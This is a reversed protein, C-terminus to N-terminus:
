LQTYKIWPFHVTCACFPCPISPTSYFKGIDVICLSVVGRYHMAVACSEHMFPAHSHPVVALSQLREDLGPSM